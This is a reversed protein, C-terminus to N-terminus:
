VQRGGNVIAQYNEKDTDGETSFCLVKSSSDLGIEDRLAALAPDEMLMAALGATVAGSEGSVVAPDEGVPHGLLRMGHASVSDPCSFFFDAYNGLMQWGLPCPEGCCLGAMMSPMSGTVTHLTGDAAKATRFICNAESPEVIIIKPGHETGYLNRFFGTLAGAMAGVGAQLFIHTPVESGLQESAELAMTTYGQMIWAPIQEYGDWSTDQVLVWGNEEATKSAFRVADDYNLDTISAEAGAARINNLREAVSGKPMYVVSKQKLQTAAWAVGRGHNGDTATVFTLSGLRALTEPATLKAYDLEGQTEGLRQAVINAIAYSGGLVKFANLGFRKSEDKVWFRALGLQKSKAELCCLPTTSYGPISRHFSRAREASKVGFIETSPLSSSACANSVIEINRNM